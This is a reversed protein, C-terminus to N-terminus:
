DLSEGCSPCFKWSQKRIRTRCSPCYQRLKSIEVPKLSEPKIQFEVTAFAFYEFTGTYNEFNQNSFGGQEVRGTEVSKQSDTEALGLSGTVQTQAQGQLASYMCTNTSTTANINLSGADLTTTFACINTSGPWPTQVYPNPTITPTSLGGYPWGLTGSSGWTITPQVIRERYFEVRIKGNNAIAKKSEKSDEVEYTEFRFKKAVDLFRELFSREGPKLVLMSNSISNGNIYVKAAVVDSTPNYLEIEFEQTDKLYVEKGGYIKLRNRGSSVFAEPQRQSTTM